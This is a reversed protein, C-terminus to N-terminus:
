RSCHPQPQPFRSRRLPESCKKVFRLFSHIWFISDFFQCTQQCLCIVSIIDKIIRLHRIKFVVVQKALQLIQFLGIRLKCLRIRRCFPNASLCQTLKFFNNMGHRQHAQLIHEAHLFQIGEQVPYQLTLAISLKRYLRFNVAQRHRQFIHFACEDAAGGSTVTGDTLIGNNHITYDCKPPIYKRM